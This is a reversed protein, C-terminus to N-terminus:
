GDMAWGRKEGRPSEVSYVSSTTGGRGLGPEPGELVLTKPPPAAARAGGEGL